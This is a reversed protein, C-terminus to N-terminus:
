GHRLKFRLEHAKRAAAGIADEAQRVVQPPASRLTEALAARETKLREEYVGLAHIIMAKEDDSLDVAGDRRNAAM